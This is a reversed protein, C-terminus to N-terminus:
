LSRTEMQFERIHPFICPIELSLGREAQEFGSFYPVEKPRMGQLQFLSNKNCVPFLMAGLLSNLVDAQQRSRFAPSRAM